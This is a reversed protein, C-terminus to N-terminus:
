QDTKIWKFSERIIDESIGLDVGYDEQFQRMYDILQQESVNHKWRYYMILEQSHRVEDANLIIKQGSIVFDNHLNNYVFLEKLYRGPYTKVDDVKMMDSLLRYADTGITRAHQIHSAEHAFEYLSADEWIYSTIKGSPFVNVRAAEDSLLYGVTLDTDDWQKVFEDALNQTEEQSLARGKARKPADMYDTVVSYAEGLEDHLEHLDAVNTDAADRGQKLFTKLPSDEMSDIANGTARLTAAAEDGKAAIKAIRSVSRGVDGIMPILTLAAGAYNGNSILLLSDVIDVGTGVIPVFSLVLMAANAAGKLKAYSDTGKIEDNRAIFDRYAGDQEFSTEYAIHEAEIELAVTSSNMLEPDLEDGETADSIVSIYYSRAEADQAQRQAEAEQQEGVIGALIQHRAEMQGYYDLMGTKVFSVDVGLISPPIESITVLLEDLLAREADQNWDAIIAEIQAQDITDYYSEQQTRSERISVEHDLDAGINEEYLNGIKVWEELLAEISMEEYRSLFERGEWYDICIPIERRHQCMYGLLSRISSIIKQRGAEELEQVSMKWQYDGLFERLWAVEAKEGTEESLQEQGPLFLGDSLLATPDSSVSDLLNSYHEVTALQALLQDVMEQTLPAKTRDAERDALLENVGQQARAIEAESVIRVERYTQKCEDYIIYTFTESIYNTVVECDGLEPPQVVGIPTVMPQLTVVPTASYPGHIRWTHNETGIPLLIVPVQEPMDVGNFTLVDQMSIGHGSIAQQVEESTPECYARMGNALFNAWDPYDALIESTCDRM